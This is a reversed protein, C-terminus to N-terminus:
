YLRSEYKKREYTPLAGGYASEITLAVEQGWPPAVLQGSDTWPKHAEAVGPSCAFVAAGVMLTAVLGFTTLRRM